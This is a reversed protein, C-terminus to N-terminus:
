QAYNSCTNPTNLLVTEDLSNKQTGVGSVPLLRFASQIDSKGLLCGAGLNQVMPIAEDFSTYPVSCLHPDIFDNVSSCTPYSLHHIFRFTGLGGKPFLGLPSVRLSQFPRSDFPGAVQGKAVEDQIKQRMVDPLLNASRLNKSKLPVRDGSLSAM